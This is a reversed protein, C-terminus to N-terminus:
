IVQFISIVCVLLIMLQIRRCRAVRYLIAGWREFNAWLGRKLGTLLIHLWSTSVQMWSAEALCDYRLKVLGMRCFRLKKWQQDKITRAKSNRVTCQYFFFFRAWNGEWFQLRDFYLCCNATYSWDSCTPWGDRFSHLERKVHLWVSQVKVLNTYFPVLM